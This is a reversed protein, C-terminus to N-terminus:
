DEFFTMTSLLTVASQGGGYLLFQICADDPIEMIPGMGPLPGWDKALPGATTTPVLALTKFLTVGFNGATGTSGSLTVSEVSKVGKDGSATNLVVVAPASNFSAQGFLCAQTTRGNTGASNTYSASVTSGSGGVTTYIELGAWVNIGNTFRTLAATPLNTTQAGTTTGSLGGQHSLRDVVMVYGNTVASTTGTLIQQLKSLVARQTAGGSKNKQGLAGATASTPVAATTPAVGPAYTGVSLWASNKHFGSAWTGSKTFDLVQTPKRIKTKLSAFTSISM